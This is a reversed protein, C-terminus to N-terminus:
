PVSQRRSSLALSLLVMGKPHINGNMGLQTAATRNVEREYRVVMSYMKASHLTVKGDDAAGQILLLWISLLLPELARLKTKGCGLDPRKTQKKM